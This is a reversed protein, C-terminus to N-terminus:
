ILDFLSTQNKIIMKEVLFKKAQMGYKLPEYKETLGWYKVNKEKRKEEIVDVDALPKFYYQSVNSPNKKYKEVILKQSVFDESAIIFRLIEQQDETLHVAEEIREWLTDAYLVLAEEVGLQTIVRDSVQSLIGYLATMITRIDGKHLDFLRSVVADNFPKFVKAVDPSKLLEFRINLAANLELSSLPKLLLPTPYFVSKVRPYPAIIDRYFTDPGLFLFFVDQTQFIDRMENFFERVVKKQTENSLVADFNNMHVILGSYNFGAIEHDRIFQILDFFYGEVVSHTLHIPSNVSMDRGASVGVNLKDWGGSVGGSWSYTHSLDIIHSIKQLLDSSSYLTPDILQVERVVSGLVELLFDRKNLLSANAEIERRSSFLLKQQKYKFIYKLYNVLSTKGVGVDGGIVFSLRKESDFLASFRAIESSRGIFAHELPLDGGELLPETSYPNSKLGFQQWNVTNM